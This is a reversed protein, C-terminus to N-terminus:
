GRQHALQKAGVAGAAVGPMVIDVELDEVARVRIAGSSTVQSGNAITASTGHTVPPTAALAAAM